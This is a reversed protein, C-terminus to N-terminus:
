AVVECVFVSDWDDANSRMAATFEDSVFLGCHTLKNMWWGQGKGALELDIIIWGSGVANKVSKLKMHATRPTIDNEIFIRVNRPVNQVHAIEDAFEAGVQAARCLQNAKTLLAYEHGNKAPHKIEM